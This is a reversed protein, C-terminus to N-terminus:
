DACPKVEKCLCDLPSQDCSPCRSYNGPLLGTKTDAPPWAYKLVVVGAEELVTMLADYESVIQIYKQLVSNRHEMPKYSKNQGLNKELHELLYRLGPRCYVVILGPHNKLLDVARAEELLARGRIPGYVLESVLVCRDRIVMPDLLVQAIRDEVDKVTEPPGGAHLIPLGLAKGLMSCLTSKGAGDPGEVVIM